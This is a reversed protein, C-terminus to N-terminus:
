QGSKEYVRKLYDSHGHFASAKDATQRRLWQIYKQPSGKPQRTAGPYRGMGSLMCYWSTRKYAQQDRQAKLVADFSGDSDWAQLIEGLKDSLEANSANDRWYDTDQRTNLKYHLQLYDRIGDILQNVEANFTTRYRDSFDGESFRRVFNEASYQIVNLMAAELPELFGQSLGIAVCNRKWHNEIRGPKWHLHLPKVGDADAGLYSHFEAEADEKSVYDSCYVYGNGVRSMLPIHWAWGHKMAQSVTESPIREKDKVPTPIAIASDNRLYKRYCLLPEDLTKQILLGGLGSCDVYFDGSLAGHTATHVCAIDGAEDLDVSSITDVIHAVGRSVAYERLFDGLLAADFHYGYDHEYPLAERPVPSRCQRALESTVFYDDPHVPVNHGQRRHNCNDFFKTALDADLNSYFPHFYTEFGEITSWGPFSIGCKYTANCRPMWESEPIGLKAFWNRISPTTGEGVGVTGIRASEILSIKVGLHGWAHHLENAVLWGATGGGVILITKPIKDV